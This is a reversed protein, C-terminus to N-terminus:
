RQHYNELNILIQQNM